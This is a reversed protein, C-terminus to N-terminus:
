LHVSGGGDSEGGEHHLCYAGRFLRHVEVLSCPSIDWFATMKLPRRTQGNAVTSSVFGVFKHSVETFVHVPRYLSQHRSLCGPYPEQFPCLNQEVSESGSGNHACDSEYEIFVPSRKWPSSASAQFQGNVKM